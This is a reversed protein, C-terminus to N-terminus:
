LCQLPKNLCLLEVRITAIKKYLPYEILNTKSSLEKGIKTGTIITGSAEM